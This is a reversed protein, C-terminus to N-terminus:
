TTMTLQEEMARTVTVFQTGQSGGRSATTWAIVVDFATGSTEPPAEFSVVQDPMLVLPGDMLEHRWPGREGDRRARFSFIDLSTRPVGESTSVRWLQGLITRDDVVLEVRVTSDAPAPAHARRGSRKSSWLQYLAGLACLVAFAALLTSWRDATTMTSGNQRRRGCDARM